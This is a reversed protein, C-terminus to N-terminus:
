VVQHRANPSELYRGFRPRGKLALLQPITNATGGMFSMIEDIDDSAPVYIWEPNRWYWYGRGYVCIVQIAPNSESDVDVKRYRTLEDNLAGNLDSDFAFLATVPIPTDAHIPSFTKPETPLIVWHETTVLPMSRLTRANNIAIQLNQNTLRSKVEITYLCSEIPFFGSTADFLSPPMIRPAYILVDIQPSKSGDLSVIQGSGLRTEPPLVPELLQSVLIERLTGRLGAHGNNGLAKARGLEGKFKAILNDRLISHGM